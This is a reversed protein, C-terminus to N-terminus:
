TRRNPRRARRTSRVFSCSARARRIPLAITRRLRERGGTLEPHISQVREDLSTMISQRRLVLYTGHSVLQDDWMHVSDPSGGREQLQKLHQNRQQVVRTYTSLAEAYRPDIQSIINDLYSRRQAPPGTVLELDAPVFLVVSLKGIWDLARTVTGNYKLAKRLRLGAGEGGHFEESGARSAELSLVAEFQDLKGPGRASQERQVQTVLRAFALGSQQAVWNILQTDTQSGLSRGGALYYIAELFSTKGQANEGYVVTTGPTLDLELRAYNKFNTIGLHTIRM